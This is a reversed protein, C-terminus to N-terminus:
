LLSNMYEYTADVDDFDVFEGFEELVFLVDGVIGPGGYFASAVPNFEKLKAWGNDDVIMVVPGHFFSRLASTRVVEFGGIEKYVTDMNNFDVDVISLKEDVTAKIVRM